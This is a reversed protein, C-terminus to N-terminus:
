YSIWSLWSENRYFAVIIIVMTKNPQLLHVQKAALCILLKERRNDRLGTATAAGLRMRIVTSLM